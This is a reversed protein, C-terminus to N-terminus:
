GLLYGGWFVVHGGGWTNTVSSYYFLEVYDNASLKQNISYGNLPSDVAAYAGGSIYTFSGNNIRFCVAYRHGTTTSYNGWGGFFFNYTGTVPATFRQNSNSWYTGDSIGTTHTTVVGLGTLKNWGTSISTGSSSVIFQYTFPKTVQGSSSIRFLESKTARQNGASASAGGASGGILKGVTFDASSTSTAEGAIYIGQQTSFNFTNPSLSINVTASSVNYSGVFGCWYDTSNATGTNWVTSWNGAPYPYTNGNTVPQTGFKNISLGVTTDTDNIGIYGDSTIRLREAANLHFAYYYTNGAIGADFKVLGNQHWKIGGRYGASGNQYRWNIAANSGEITIANESIANVHLAGDYDGSTKNIVVRGDSTIRLREAAASGSPHTFFTMYKANNSGSGDQSRLSIEGDTGDTHVAFESGGVDVVFNDQDDVGKVITQGSSNIRLREVSNIQFSHGSGNPSMYDIDGVYSQIINETGTHSLQFDSAAGLKIRRGDAALLM